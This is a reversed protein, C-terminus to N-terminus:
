GVEDWGVCLLYAVGVEGRGIGACSVLALLGWGAWM